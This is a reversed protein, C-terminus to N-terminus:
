FYSVLCVNKSPNIYIYNHTIELTWCLHFIILFQSLNIFLKNFGLFNNTHGKRGGDADATIKLQGGSLGHTMWPWLKPKWWSELAPKSGKQIVGFIVSYYQITSFVFGAVFDFIGECTSFTILSGRFRKGEEKGVIYEAWSNAEWSQKCFSLSICIRSQKGRWSDAKDCATSGDWSKYKM